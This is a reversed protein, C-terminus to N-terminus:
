IETSKILVAILWYLTQLTGRIAELINLGIVNTTLDYRPNVLSTTMAVQGAVHCVYDFPAYRRFISTIAEVNGIDVQFTSPALPIFKKLGNLIVQLAKEIYVILLM